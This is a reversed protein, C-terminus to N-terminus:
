GGVVVGVLGSGNSINGWGYSPMIERTKAESKKMIGITVQSSM